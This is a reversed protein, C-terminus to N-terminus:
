EVNLIWWDFNVDDNTTSEIAVTFSEGEKKDTVILAQGGTMTTATVFVKSNTKIKNNEIVVEKNGAKISSSGILESAGKVQFENATVTTAKVEGEVNLTGDAAIVVAGDMFDVNGTLGKQLYLTQSACNEENMEDTEKNYCPIGVLGISNELTDVKILGAMLDGTVTVNNLTTDGLVNMNADVLLGSDETASINLNEFLSVFKDYLNQMELLIDGPTLAMNASETTQTSETTETIEDLVITVSQTSETTENAGNVLERLSTIEDRLLSMEDKVGAVEGTLTNVTTQLDALPATTGTLLSEVNNVDGSVDNIKMDLEQVAAALIPTLRSYNIGMYGDVPNTFTIEPFVLAAEQAILGLDTRKEADNKWNFSVPNLQLVRDLVNTMETINTKLRLDSAATTLTGDSTINLDNSYAGSGVATFRGNGIVHLSVSPNTTGIGVRGSQPLLGIPGTGSAITSTLGSSGAVTLPGTPNTTGIGVYGNATIVFPTLDNSEDNVRFIDVSGTSTLTLSQNPVSFFFPSDSGTTGGLAFSDSLSTLYTTGGNDTFLSGGTAPTSCQWRNAGADWVLIQGDSCGGLMRLGSTGIELGSASATSAGAGSAAINVQLSTGSTVLGLGVFDGITEGGISIQPITAVGTSTKFYFKANSATTGGISLDDSLSTLYTTAGGDTFLSGGVAGTLNNWGSGDYFYLDTGDNYLEGNQGITPQVGARIRLSGATTTAPAVDLYATASTVGIGTFRAPAIIYDSMTKSLQGGFITTTNGNVINISAAGTGSYNNDALYTNDVTTASINIAYTSGATDTITNSTISNNNADGLIEIGDGVNNHFNNGSVQNFDGGNIYLGDTTNQTFLNGSITNRNGTVVMGEQANSDFTNGTITNSDSEIRLGEAWGTSNIFLNNSIVNYMSDSNWVIVSGNDGASQSFTNGDVTVYASSSIEIASWTSSDFNNNAVVIGQSSQYADTIAVGIYNGNIHNNSVLVNYNYDEANIRIGYGDSNDIWTNLVSSNDTDAIYINAGYDVDPYTAKAGDIYLNSVTVGDRSSAYILNSNATGFERLIKTGKGTGTLTVY